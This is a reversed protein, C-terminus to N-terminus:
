LLRRDPPKACVRYIEEIVGGEGRYQVENSAIMTYRFNKLGMRVLGENGRAVFDELSSVERIEEWKIHGDRTTTVIFM